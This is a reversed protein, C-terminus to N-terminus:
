FAELTYRISDEGVDTNNFLHSVTIYLYDVLFCGSVRSDCTELTLTSNLYVEQTELETTCVGPCKALSKM